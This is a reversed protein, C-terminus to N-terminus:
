CLLRRRSTRKSLMTLIKNSAAQEEALPATNNVHAPSPTQTAEANALQASAQM